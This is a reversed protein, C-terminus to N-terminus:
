SAQAHYMLRIFQRISTRGVLNFVGKLEPHWHGKEGCQVFQVRGQFHDVVAQYYDPSWWKTTFDYKGGALLIWFRGKFGWLEEVQNMWEKEQAALHIDGSFQTVPVPM